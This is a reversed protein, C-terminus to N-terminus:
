GPFTLPLYLWTVAMIWLWFPWCIIGQLRCLHTGYLNYLHYVVYPIIVNRKAISFRPRSDHKDALSALKAMPINDGHSSPVYDLAWQFHLISNEEKELHLWSPRNREERLMVTNVHDFYHLCSTFVSLIPRHPLAHSSTHVHVYTQALALLLPSSSSTVLFLLIKM